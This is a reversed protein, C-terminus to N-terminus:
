TGVKTPTSAKKFLLEFGSKGGLMVEKKKKGWVAEPRAQVLFISEPFSLTGSICFEIDQACGFHSEVKKAIKTLELIERDELCPLNKQDESLKKYEMEGTEPNLAFENGKDAIVKEEIEMTVKDVLFRDPNVNGSVVAEGFGFGAELAVKSDDGNIPNVTFLVGAAKADVMTLVAVGIPDDHLPLGLRARSIISRTNFTSAWVRIINHVVDDAGRVNLFTEYQGPHSKAGASRCAVYIDDRGAMKCLEAYYEKATEEMDPPMKTSEAIGRMTKSLEEYKPTDVVNEPDAQFSSLPELLREKVGTEEIFRTYAAVGLAYGAPVHFGAKTLEGLNACKKGVIDNHEAGIESMRYIWTEPM